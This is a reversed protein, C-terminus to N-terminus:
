VFKSIKQKLIEREEIKMTAIVAKFITKIENFNISKLIGTNKLELFNDTNQSSYEYQVQKQLYSESGVHKYIYDFIQM